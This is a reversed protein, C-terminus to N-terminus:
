KRISVSPSGALSIMSASPTRRRLRFYPARISAQM